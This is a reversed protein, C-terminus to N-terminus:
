CLARGYNVQCYRNWNLVLISPFCFERQMSGIGEPVDMEKRIGYVSECSGNQPLSYHMIRITYNPCVDSCLHEAIVDAGNHSGLKIPPQMWLNKDFPESAYELLQEDTLSASSGNCGSLWLTGLTVALKLSTRM